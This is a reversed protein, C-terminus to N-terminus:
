PAQRQIAALRHVADATSPYLDLFVSYLEDYLDRLSVDPLVTHEIRAWTTSEPLDGVGVAALLADGYAAGITETPIEQPLGTVDSVIKTWLRGRTGGGVAVLRAPPVQAKTLQDLIHRISYATGELIARYIDGSRHSLTLGVILGRADPDYIPTNTGGFYPLIVVGSAGPPTEEAERLLETFPRHGILSRWWATVAGSTATGAALSWSGRFAGATTWMTRNFAFSGPKVAEILFMTTGYMLMADRPQHVGVSLSEAWADITGAVVPIGPELNTARAAAPSVLGAVDSPWLLRPFELGPAVVTAWDTAWGFEHLDYLPDCQSASHHDLIYAGTLRHVIYSSAMFFRRTMAWVDPEHRRLWLLKPGVAQSSLTSGGRELIASEGFRETLEAIEAAARTDVGYLIANRLPRGSADAPLLCPGIGSVGIAKVRGRTTALLEQTISVFDNWWVSDPDHEAWGPRPLVIEHPREARAVIDGNGQVLVGKSSSSGIDVGLYM